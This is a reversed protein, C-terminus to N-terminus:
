EARPHESESEMEFRLTLERVGEDDWVVEEPIEGTELELAHCIAKPITFAYSGNNERIENTTLPYRNAM